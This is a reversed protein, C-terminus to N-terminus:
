PTSTSSLNPLKTTSYTGEQEDEHPTVLARRRFYRAEPSELTLPERIKHGQRNGLETRSREPTKYNLRWRKSERHQSGGSARRGRKSQNASDQEEDGDGEYPQQEDGGKSGEEGPGEEGDSNNEDEDCEGESVEASSQLGDDAESESDFGPEEWEKHNRRSRGRDKQSEQGESISKPIELLDYKFGDNGIRGIALEAGMTRRKKTNLDRQGYCCLNYSAGLCFANTVTFFDVISCTERAHHVFITLRDEM